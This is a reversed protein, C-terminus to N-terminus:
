KVIFMSLSLNTQSSLMFEVTPGKETLYSAATWPSIQFVTFFIFIFAVFNGWFM